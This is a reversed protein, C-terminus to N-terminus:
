TVRYRRPHAGCEAIFRALDALGGPRDGIVVTFQMLRGAPVLGQEIVRSLIAPDINGGCLVLAVRCGALCPLKGATLAPM